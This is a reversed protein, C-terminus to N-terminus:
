FDVLFDIFLILLDLVQSTFDRFCLFCRWLLSFYLEDLRLFLWLLWCLPLVSSWLPLISSWSLSVELAVEIWVVVAVVISM